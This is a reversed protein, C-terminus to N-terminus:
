STIITLHAFNPWKPGNFHTPMENEELYESMTLLCLHHSGLQSAINNKGWVPFNVLSTATM